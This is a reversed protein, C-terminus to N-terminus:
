FWSGVADGPCCLGPAGSLSLSVVAGWTEQVFSMWRGSGLHALGAGLLWQSEPPLFIELPAWALCLWLLWGHGRGRRGEWM